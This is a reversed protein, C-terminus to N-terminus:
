SAARSGALAGQRGFPTQHSRRMRRVNWRAFRTTVFLLFVCIVLGLPIIWLGLLERDSPAPWIFGLGTPIHSKVDWWLGVHDPYFPKAIACVLFGVAIGYGLLSVLFAALAWVSKIALRFLTRMVLWPSRSIEAKAMLNETLYMAAITEAPGLRDLAERTTADTIPANRSSISDLIHSRLEALIESVQAGPLRRLKDRIQLLYMEISDVPTKDSKM